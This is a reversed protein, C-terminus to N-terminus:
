DDGVALIDDLLPRFTIFRVQFARKHANYLRNQNIHSTKQKREL